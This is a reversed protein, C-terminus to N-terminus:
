RSSLSQTRSDYRVSRRGDPGSSWIRFHQGNQQYGYWMGDYPDLLTAPEALEFPSM